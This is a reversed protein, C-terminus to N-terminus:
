YMKKKEDVSMGGPGLGVLLLFGGMISLNQFFDYKHFDRLPNDTNLSWWNNVIINSISLITVFFAASWKAKFGVAVMMCVLLGLISLSFRLLTMKGWLVSFFLFVLLVRGLLQIYASRKNESIIPLGAFLNKEKPMAEALLLLLGGTVSLVRCIFGFDEFIMGYGLTQLILVSFLGIVAYNVHKRILVLISCLLQLVINLLLFIKAIILSFNRYRKLFSLQEPWQFFIRLGDEVFTAVLLFRAISPIYPKL